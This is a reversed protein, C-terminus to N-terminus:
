DTASSNGSARLTYRQRSATQVDRHATRNYRIEAAPTISRPRPRGATPHWPDPSQAPHVAEGGAEQVSARGRTHHVVDCGQHALPHEPDRQAVLVQDVVVRQAVIRNQTHHQPTQLGPARATRRKGALRRQVPQLVRGCAGMAVAADTMLRLRDLPEEDIEEEVGVPLRRLPQDEVQVGGVVRQVATLFAAEEVAVVVAVAVQREVDEAAIVQQGGLQPPASMSALAPAASSTARM